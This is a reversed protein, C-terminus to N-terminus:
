MLSKYPLEEPYLLIFNGEFDTVTGNTTGKQIISVGILPENSKADTITGNIQTEVQAFTTSAFCILLTCFLYIPSLTKELLKM